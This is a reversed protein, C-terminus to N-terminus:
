RTNMFAMLEATFGFPDEWHLSHGVGAFIQLISGRLRRAAATQEDVSFVADHDGGLILAPLQAVDDDDAFDMMGSLAGKWVRSPVRCSDAIVRELFDPPVPRHITGTQFDRVFAADVPDTLRDVEDRLAAIVANRPSLGTGLLVLRDVRSPALAALRRAVFSGLSHGVITAREIQLRDLLDLADLAFADMTFREPVGSGGHGRQDPVIAHVSRPLLPLVRSFSYWSDTLGHLMLIAPTGPLGQQVFRLRAGTALAADSTELMTPTMM